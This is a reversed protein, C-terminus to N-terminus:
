SSAYSKEEKELVHMLHTLTQFILLLANIFTYAVLVLSFYTVWEIIDDHIRQQFRRRIQRSQSLRMDRSLSLNGYAQTRNPIPSTPITSAQPDAALESEVELGFFHFNYDLTMSARCQPCEVIGFRICEDICHKCYDENHACSLRDDKAVERDFCLVCINPVVSTTTTSHDEKKTESPADLNMTIM